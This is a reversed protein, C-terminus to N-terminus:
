LLSSLFDPNLLSSHLLGLLMRLWGVSFELVLHGVNDELPQAKIDWGQDTIPHPGDLFGMVNSSTSGQCCSSTVLQLSKSSSNGAAQLELGRQLAFQITCKGKMM